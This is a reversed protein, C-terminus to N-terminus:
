SPFIRMQLGHCDFVTPVSSLPDCRPLALTGLVNQLTLPQSISKYKKCIDLLENEECRRGNQHLSTPAPRERPRFGAEARLEMMERACGQVAMDYRPAHREVSGRGAAVTDLRGFYLEAVHKSLKVRHVADVLELKVRLVVDHCRRTTIAGDEEKVDRRQQVAVLRVDKCLVKCRSEHLWSQRDSTRLAVRVPSRGYLLSWPRTTNGPAWFPHKVAREIDGKCEVTREPEAKCPEVQAETRVAQTTPAKLQKDRVNHGFAAVTPLVVHRGDEGLECGGTGLLGSVKAREDIRYTLSKALRM